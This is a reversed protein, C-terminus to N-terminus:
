VNFRFFAVDGDRIVYEKGELRLLGKEKVNNFSGYKELDEYSVVEARIFGREMDTHIKGAAEPAKTGKTITWARAEVPGGTFFTILNLLKYSAHIFADLPSEEIGMDHMFEAAEEDSLQGMEEELEAPMVIVAADEEAAKAKVEKAYPNDTQGIASEGINAVYVVPKLTLLSLSRLYATEKDNFDHSRLTLGKDLHDRAKELTAVERAVDKDGARRTKAAAALRKEVTALDAMMLELNIIDIDEGPAVRGEVHAVNQDDFCRVIHAVADTERINHLFQNGLGEGKCAGRVLGAIDLFKVSVPTTKASGELEAVRQLRGDPVDVMGVNPEITTFAYAAAPAGAKTLANFLTSKGANPLGVIGIQM